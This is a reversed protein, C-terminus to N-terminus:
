GPRVACFPSPTACMRGVRIPVLGPVRGQNSVEVAQVADPRRGGPALEGHSSRPVRARLEKGVGKPSRPQWPPHPGPPAGATRRAFGAVAPIRVQDDM